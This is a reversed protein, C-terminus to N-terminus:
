FRRCEGVFVGWGGEGGEINDFDFNLVSIKSKEGFGTRNFGITIVTYKKFVLLYKLCVSYCQFYCQYNFAM